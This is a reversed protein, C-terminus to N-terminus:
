TFARFFYFDFSILPLQFVSSRPVSSRTASCQGVRRASCRAYPHPVLHSHLGRPATPEARSSFSRLLLFPARQPRRQIFRHGSRNYIVLDLIEATQASSPVMVVFGLLLPWNLSPQGNRTKYFHLRM